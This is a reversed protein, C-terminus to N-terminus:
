SYQTNEHIDVKEKSTYPINWWSFNKNKAMRRIPLLLEQNQNFMEYQTFLKACSRDFIDQMASCNHYMQVNLYRKLELNFIFILFHNGECYCPKDKSAKVRVLLIMMYIRVPRFFLLRSIDVASRCRFDSRGFNPVKVWGGQNGLPWACPWSRDVWMGKTPVRCRFRVPGGPTVYSDQFPEPVVVGSHYM